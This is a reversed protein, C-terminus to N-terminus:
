RNVEAASSSEEMALPELYVAGGDVVFAGTLDSISTM